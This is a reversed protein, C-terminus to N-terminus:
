HSGKKAVEKREIKNAGSISRLATVNGRKMTVKAPRSFFPLLAVGSAENSHKHNPAAGDKQTGTHGTATQKKSM